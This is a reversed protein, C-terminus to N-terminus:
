TAGNAEWNRREVRTKPERIRGRAVRFQDLLSAGLLIPAAAAGIWRGVSGVGGQETNLDQRLLRVQERPSPRNEYALRYDMARLSAEMIPQYLLRERRLRRRVRADPHNSYKRWGALMTKFLRCVSPGNQEYDRRFAWDLLVKSEDRSIGPHRFNLKFQGHSDAYPVEQLLSGEALSAQYLPTGPMPTYLMFQHFDTEHLVAHEIEERLNEQTHHPLGIISSGITAIGHERLRRVM